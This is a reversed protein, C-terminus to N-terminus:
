LWFRYIWDCLISLTLHVHFTQLEPLFIACSLEELCPSTFAEALALTSPVLLLVYLWNEDNACETNATEGALQSPDTLQLDISLTSESINVSKCLTTLFDLHGAHM